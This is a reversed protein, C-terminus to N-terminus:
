IQERWQLVIDQNQWQKQIGYWNGIIPLRCCCRWINLMDAAGLRSTDSSVGYMQTSLAYFLSLSILSLCLFLPSLSHYSLSLRLSLLSLSLSSLSSYSFSLGLNSCLCARQILYCQFCNSFFFVKRCRIAGNLRDLITVLFILHLEVFHSM